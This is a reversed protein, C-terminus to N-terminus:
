EEEAQQRRIRITKWFRDVFKNYDSDNLSERKIEFLAKIENLTPEM